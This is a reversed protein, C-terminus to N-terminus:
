VRGHTYAGPRDWHFSSAEAASLRRVGAAPDHIIVSSRGASKLVVFHNLDWHLICPMSLQPLEELELRVPRAAMALQDAIAVLERLTAGKISLGYRRRLEAPDIAYGFFTAIMSLCVLGCEAAETQLTMPLRRGWGFNLAELVSV